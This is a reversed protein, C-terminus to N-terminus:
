DPRWELLLFSKEWENLTSSPQLLFQSRGGKKLMQLIFHIDTSKLVLLFKSKTARAVDAGPIKALLYVM